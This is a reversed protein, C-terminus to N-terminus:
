DEKIAENESREERQALSGGQVYEMVIYDLGNETGADCVSVIHTHELAAEVQAEKLFRRHAHPDASSGPHLIKVAVKKKLSRHRGLYVGGVGGEGLKRGLQYNGITKGVLPDRQKSRESASPKRGERCSHLM